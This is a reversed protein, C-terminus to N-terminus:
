IPEDAYSIHIRPTKSEIYCAGALIRVKFTPRELKLLLYSRAFEDLLHDINIWDQKLLERIEEFSGLRFDIGQWRTPGEFYWVDGLLIYFSPEYTHALNEVVEIIM